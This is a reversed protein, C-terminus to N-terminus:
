TALPGTNSVPHFTAVEHTQRCARSRHRHHPRSVRHQCLCGLASIGALNACEFTIRGLHARGFDREDNTDLQKAFGDLRLPPEAGISFAQRPLRRAAAHQVGGGAAEASTRHSRDVAHQADRIQSSLMLYHCYVRIGADPITQMWSAADERQSENAPDIRSISRNAGIGRDRELDRLRAQFSLSAM